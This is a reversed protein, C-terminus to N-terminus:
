KWRFTWLRLPPMEAGDVAVAAAYGPGPELGSVAVPDGRRPGGLGTGLCKLRAEHRTWAAFFVAAREAEGAAAVSAAEAADLERKAVGVLNRGPDIREVDVGVERGVTVAVLALAGSHSLNFALREPEAALRPKGHEGAALELAAPEEGLYRALVTRLGWRAAAWRAGSEPRRMRQARKREAAPLGEAGPRGSAELDLRWVHAEDASALPREPGATWAGGAADHELDM